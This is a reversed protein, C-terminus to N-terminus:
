AEDREDKFGYKNWHKTYLKMKSYVMNRCRPCSYKEPEDDPACFMNYIKFLYMLDEAKCFTGNREVVLAVDRRVSEPYIRMSQQYIVNDYM